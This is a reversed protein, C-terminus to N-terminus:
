GRFRVDLRQRRIDAKSAMDAKGGFASMPPDAKRGHYRERIGWVRRRVHGWWWGSVSVVNDAALAHINAPDIQGIKGLAFALAPKDVDVAVHRLNM